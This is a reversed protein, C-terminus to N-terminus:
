IDHATKVKRIVQQAPLATRQPQQCSCDRVGHNEDHAVAEAKPKNEPYSGAHCGADGHRNFEISCCVSQIMVRPRPFSHTGRDASESDSASQVRDHAESKCSGESGKNGSALYVSIGLTHPRGEIIGGRPAWAQCAALEPPRDAARNAVDRRCQDAAGKDMVQLMGPPKRNAHTQHRADDRTNSNGENRINFVECFIKGFPPQSCEADPEDKASESQLRQLIPERQEVYAQRLPRDLEVVVM